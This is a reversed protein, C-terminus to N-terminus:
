KQFEKLDINFEKSKDFDSKKNSTRVPPSSNSLVKKIMLKEGFYFGVWFICYEWACQFIYEKWIMNNLILVDLFSFLLIIPIASIFILKKNM